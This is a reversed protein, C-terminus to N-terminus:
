LHDVRFRFDMNVGDEDFPFWVPYNTDWLNNMLQFTAEGSGDAAGARSAVGRAGAHVVPSPYPNAGAGLSVLAADLSRIILGSASDRVGGDGAAHLHTSCYPAMVEPRVDVYSGLKDVEWAAAM